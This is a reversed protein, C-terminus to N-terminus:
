PAISCQPCSIVEEAGSAMSVGYFDDEVKWAETHEMHMVDMVTMFAEPARFPSLSPSFDWPKM